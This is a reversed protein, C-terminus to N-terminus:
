AFGPATLDFEIFGTKNQNLDLGLSEHSLQTIVQAYVCYINNHLFFLFKGKPWLFLLPHHHHHQTKSKNPTQKNTQKTPKKTHNKKKFGEFGSLEYICGLCM